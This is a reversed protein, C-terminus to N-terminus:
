FPIEDEALQQIQQDNWGAAILQPRTFSGSGPVVYHPEAPAVPPAVPPAANLFDPAPQVAAAPAVPPAVAAAPAVPPAVAAPTALPTAPAMPIASAGAPLASVPAAGFVSAADPGSTFEEGFAIHEVMSLNLYVGPKSTSGNGKCSGYIRVYHGRKVLEPDTIKAAGGKTYVDPAFGSSFRVVWHGAFGEKDCPRVGRADPITGDGDTIKNSFTPTHWHHPFAAAAAGDILAKFADWEPSNKAIAIAMFYDKRPNGNSDTLPKGDMNTDSYSFPGGQVLRGVPTLLDTVNSM